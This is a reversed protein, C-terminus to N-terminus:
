EIYSTDFEYIFELEQAPTPIAIFYHFVAKGELYYSQPNEEARYEVRGGLLDGDATLGNLWINISDVVSDILKRTMKEDLRSWYSMVTIRELYSFMRNVNIFYDKIDTCDPFCATTNGWAVFGNIFNLATVIGNKNLYDAENLNINLETGDALVAAECKLAKNSPSNSPVGGNNSDTVAILAALQTSLHFTKDGLKVMPFCLVQNTGIINKNKKWEPVDSYKKAASTDTDSIALGKFLGNIGNPMAKAGMVAAVEPIHSYGPAILLEPIIHFATFVDGILEFGTKRGSEVDVGGIIDDKDVMSPDVATYEVTLSTTDSTIAGGSVGSIVLNESTYSVVYDTDKVLSTNGSKVVLTSDNIATVPLLAKGGIYSVSASSVSKKHVAPDLVNVFIVPGTMFLKFHNFMVECLTFMNWDDSYGLAEVAEEYSNAMVIKNAAGGATHVPATGVAFTVGTDVEAIASNSTNKETNNIGHSLNAM